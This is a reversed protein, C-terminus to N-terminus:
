GQDIIIIQEEGKSQETQESNGNEPKGFLNSLDINGCSALALVSLTLTVVLVLVLLRNTLNKM